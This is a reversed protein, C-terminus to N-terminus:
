NHYNIIENIQKFIKIINFLINISLNENSTVVLDGFKLTGKLYKETLISKQM